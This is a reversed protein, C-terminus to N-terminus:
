GGRYARWELREIMDEFSEVLTQYDDPTIPEGEDYKDLFAEGAIMIAGMYPGALCLFYKINGVSNGIPLM